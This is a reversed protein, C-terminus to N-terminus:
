TNTILASQIYDLRGHTYNEEKGHLLDLHIETFTYIM